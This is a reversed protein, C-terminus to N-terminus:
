KALEVKPLNKLQDKTYGSLLLDDDRRKIEDFPIAVDHKGMGLFGGAGVIFYAVKGDSSLVVDSVDGVKEDNENYVTKGIIKDKVSWGTITEKQDSQDQGDMRDAPENAGPTAASGASPANEAGPAEFRGQGTGTGSETGTGAAPAGPPPTGASDKDGSTAPQDTAPAPTSQAYALTGFALPISCATATLLKKM